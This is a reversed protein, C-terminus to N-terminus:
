RHRVAGLDRLSVPRGRRHELEAIQALLLEATAIADTLARHARYRPLGYRRRADDLRLRGPPVEGHVGTELSVQVAMTDVVTLPLGCGYAERVACGVFGLEIPSHHAVLVHGALAALLDPLVERLPPAATVADDTLGHINASDGVSGNPPRVVIERAEALLVRRRRVPVWGVSLAHDQRPDLGTTELDVVLFDVEEVLTDPPGPPSAALTRVPGAPYRAPDPPRRDLLARLGM